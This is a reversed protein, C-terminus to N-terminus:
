HQLSLSITVCVDRTRPLCFLLYLSDPCCGYNRTWTVYGVVLYLVSNHSIVYFSLPATVIQFWVPKNPTVADLCRVKSEFQNSFTLTFTGVGWSKCYVMYIISNFTNRQKNLPSFKKKKWEILGGTAHDDDGCQAKEVNVDCWRCWNEWTNLVVFRKEGSIVRKPKIM